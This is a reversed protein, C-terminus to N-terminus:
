LVSASSPCLKELRSKSDRRSRAICCNRSLSREMDRECAGECSLTPLELEASRVASARGADSTSQQGLATVSRKPSPNDQM